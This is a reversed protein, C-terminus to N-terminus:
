PVRRERRDILPQNRLDAGGSYLLDFAYFILRQPTRVIAEKLGDFDARGSEDQIVIEGDMVADSTLREADRLVHRYLHSWDHGNRTYAHSLASGVHLQTRYGDHKIEHLWKEGSPPESVLTPLMPPIYGISVRKLM